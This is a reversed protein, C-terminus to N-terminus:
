PLPCPSGQSLGTLIGPDTKTRGKTSGMARGKLSQQDRRQLQIFAGDLTQCSYLCGLLSWRAWREDELLFHSPLLQQM